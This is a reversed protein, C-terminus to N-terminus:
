EDYELETYYILLSLATTLVILIFISKPLTSLKEIFLFVSVIVISLLFGWYFSRFIKM